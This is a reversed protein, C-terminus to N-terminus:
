MWCIIGVLFNPSFLIFFHFFFFSSKDKVKKSLLSSKVFGCVSPVHRGVFPDSTSLHMAARQMWKVKVAVANVHERGVFSFSLQHLLPLLVASPLQVSPNSPQIQLCLWAVDNINKEELAHKFVQEFQGQALQALYMPRNDRPPHSPNPQSVPSERPDQQSHLFHRFQQELSMRTGDVARLLREELGRQQEVIIRRLVEEEGKTGKGVIDVVEKEVTTM